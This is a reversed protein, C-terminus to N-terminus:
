WVAPGYAIEEEVQGIPRAPPRAPVCVGCWPGALWGPMLAGHSPHVASWEACAVPLPM